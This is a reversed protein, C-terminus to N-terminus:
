VSNRVECTSTHQGIPLSFVLTAGGQPNSYGSLEGNHGEIITRCIRLGLGAGEPKDTFFTKFLDGINQVPLGKGNDIVRVEIMADTTVKTSIKVSRSSKPNDSLADFANRILNLIVQEIQIEEVLSTPLSEDLNCEIRISRRQAESDLIRVVERILGNLNASTRTTTTKRILKRIGRIVEGARHSEESLKKLISAADDLEKPTRSELRKGAVYAYNSIVTLPQNLEHAIAAGMEGLTNLRSVHFLEDTQRRLQEVATKERTVDSFVAVAAAAEGDRMIPAIRCSFWAPVGRVVSGRIEFEEMQETRFVTAMADNVIQHGEVDFVDAPSCGHPDNNAFQLPVRNIYQINGDRNVTMIFSPASELTANLNEQSDALAQRSNELKQNTEDLHRLLLYVFYAAAACWLTFVSNRYLHHLPDDRGVIPWSDWQPTNRIISSAVGLTSFVGFVTLACLLRGPLRYRIGVRLLLSSITGWVALRLWGGTAPTLGGLQETTKLSFIM